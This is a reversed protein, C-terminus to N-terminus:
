TDMHRERSGPEGLDDAKIGFGMSRRKVIGAIKGFASPGKKVGGDESGSASRSRRSIPPAPYPNEKLFDNVSVLGNPDRLHTAEEGLDSGHPNMHEHYSSLPVVLNVM